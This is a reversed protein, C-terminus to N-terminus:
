RAAPIAVARVVTTVGPVAAPGSLAAASGRGNPIPAFRDPTEAVRTPRHRRLSAVKSAPTPTFDAARHTESTAGRFTKFGNATAVIDGARLTPDSMIDVTALGFPDKGNCSCSPVVSKRYAFAQDLKAYHIGTADKASAIESGHFVRTTAAPCMASCMRVPTSNGGDSTMPYYRGDCLRVCFAAEEPEDTRIAPTNQRRLNVDAGPDAHPYAAPRQPAFLGGFLSEFFGAADARPTMAGIGFAAGVTVAAVAAVCLKRPRGACLAVGSTM